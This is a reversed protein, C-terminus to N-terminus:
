GDHRLFFICINGLQDPAFRPPYISIKYSHKGDHFPQRKGVVPIHLLIFRRKEVTSFCRDRTNLYKGPQQLMRSEILFFKSFQGRFIEAKSRLNSFIKDAFLNGEAICM